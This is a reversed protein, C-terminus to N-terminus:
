LCLAVQKVTKPAGGYIKFILQLLDPKQLYLLVINNVAFYHLCATRTPFFFLWVKTCLAFFLSILRQAEVLSMASMSQAVQRDKKSNELNGLDSIQSDSGSTEESGVQVHFYINSSVFALFLIPKWGKWSPITYVICSGNMWGFSPM